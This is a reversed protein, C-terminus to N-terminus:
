TSIEPKYIKELPSHIRSSRGCSSVCRLPSIAAGYTNSGTLYRSRRWWMHSVLLWQTTGPDRQTFVQQYRSGFTNKEVKLNSPQLWKIQSVLHPLIEEIRTTNWEMDTTLFDSVTLDLYIDSVTLDLACVLLSILAIFLSRNSVTQCASDSHWAQNSAFLFFSGISFRATCSTLNMSLHM